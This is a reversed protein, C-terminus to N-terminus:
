SDARSFTERSTIDFVIIAAAAGRYYMPALNNFREQGATDWIELKHTNGKLHVTQTLFAAGITTEQNEYFHGMVYRLGISSKGVSTDGLIVVKFRDKSNM